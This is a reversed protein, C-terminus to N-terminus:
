DNVAPSSSREPYDRLSARNIAGHPLMDDQAQRLIPYFILGDTLTGDTRAQNM